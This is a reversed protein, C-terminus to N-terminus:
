CLPGVRGGDAFGGLSPRSCPDASAEAAHVTPTDHIGWQLRIWYDVVVM